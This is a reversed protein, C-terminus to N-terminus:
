LVHVDPLTLTNIISCKFPSTRHGYWRGGGRLPGDRRIRTRPPAKVGLRASATNTDPCLFRHGTNPTTATSGFSNAPSCWVTRSRPDRNDAAMPEDGELASRRDSATGCGSRDTIARKHDIIKANFPEMSLSSRPNYIFNSLQQTKNDQKNQCKLPVANYPFNRNVIPPPPNRKLAGRNSLPELIKSPINYNKWISEISVMFNTDSEQSFLRKNVCFSIKNELIAMHGKYSRYFVFFIEGTASIKELRLLKYIICPSIFSKPGQKM